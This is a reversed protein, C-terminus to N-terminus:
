SVTRELYTAWVLTPDIVLTRNLTELGEATFGFTNDDILQYEVNVPMKDDEWFSAPITEHLSRVETKIEFDKGKKTIASVGDYKFRIDSIKAGPRLILDYKLTGNELKFVLDIGNYLNKYSVQNY